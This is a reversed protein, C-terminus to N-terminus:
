PAVLLLFISSLNFFGRDVLWGMTCWNRALTGCVSRFALVSEPFVADFVEDEPAGFKEGRKTKGNGLLQRGLAARPTKEGLACTFCSEQYETIDVGSSLSNEHAAM